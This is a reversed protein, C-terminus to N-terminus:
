TDINRLVFCLAFQWINSIKSFLGSWSVCKLFGQQLQQAWCMSFSLWATWFAIWLKAFCFWDQNIFWIKTQKPTWIQKMKWTSALQIIDFARQQSLYWCFCVKSFCMFSVLTASPKYRFEFYHKLGFEPVWTPRRLYSGFGPVSELQWEQERHINIVGFILSMRWIICVICLLLYLWQTLSAPSHTVM